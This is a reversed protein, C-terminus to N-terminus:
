ETMNHIVNTTVVPTMNLTVNLTMNLAVNLTANLSLIVNLTGVNDVNLMRALLLLVLLLVFM